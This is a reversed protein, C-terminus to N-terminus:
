QSTAGVGQPGAPGQRGATPGGRNGHAEMMEQRMSRNLQEPTPGQANANSVGSGKVLVAVTLAIILVAVVAVAVLLNRPSLTDTSM